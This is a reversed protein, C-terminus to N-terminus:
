YRLLLHAKDPRIVNTAVANAALSCSAFTLIGWGDQHGCLIVLSRVDVMSSMDNVVPAQIGSLMIFSWVFLQIYSMMAPVQIIIIFSSRGWVGAGFSADM